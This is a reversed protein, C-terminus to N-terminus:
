EEELSSCSKGRPTQKTATALSGGKRILEKQLINLDLVAGKSLRYDDFGITYRDNVFSKVGFGVLFATVFFFALITLSYERHLLQGLFFSGKGQM